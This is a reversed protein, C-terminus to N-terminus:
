GALDTRITPGTARIGERFSVPERTGASARIGILYPDIVMNGAEAQRAIELLRQATFDDTTVAGAAIDDVWNGNAALFVVRGDTLRNALIM